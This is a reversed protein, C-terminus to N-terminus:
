NANTKRACGCEGNATRRQTAKLALVLQLLSLATKSRGAGVSWLLVGPVGRTKSQVLGRGTTTSYQQTSGGGLQPQPAPAQLRCIHGNGPPSELAEAFLVM